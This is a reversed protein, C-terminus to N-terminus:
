MPSSGPFISTTRASPSCCSTSRQPGPRARRARPSTSSCSRSRRRCRARAAAAGPHLQARARAALRARRERDDRRHLRAAPVDGRCAPERGRARARHAASLQLAFPPLGPEDLARRAADMRRSEEAASRGSVRLHPRRKFDRPRAPLVRQGHRLPSLLLGRRVARDAPGSQGRRGRGLRRARRDVPRAGRDRHHRAAAACEADRRRGHHDGAQWLRSPHAGGRRVPRQLRAAAGDGEDFVWSCTTQPAAGVLRMEVRHDAPALYSERAGDRECTTMLAGMLDICLNSLMSRAWGRGDTETAMIQEAALM